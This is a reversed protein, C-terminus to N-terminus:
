HCVINKESPCEMELWHRKFRTRKSRQDQLHHDVTTVTDDDMFENKSLSTKTYNVFYTPIGHCLKQIEEPLNNLEMDSVEHDIETELGMFEANKDSLPIHESELIKSAEAEDVPSTISWAKSVHCYKKDHNVLAELKQVLVNFELRLIMILIKSVSPEHILTTSSDIDLHQPVFITMTGSTKNYKINQKYTIGHEEIDIDHDEIEEIQIYANFIDFHIM